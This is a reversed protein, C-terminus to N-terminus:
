RNVQKVPGKGDLPKVFFANPDSHKDTVEFLDPKYDDQIKNRGEPHDRLLVLNGIPIDFDKDGSSRENVKARAQISKLAQKNAQVIKEFQKDVWIVKSVSKDDNYQRLGLWNDCPAPAKRGFMLEYPQYGTTSHPTANYAFTLAPLHSPWDGKQEKTLTKLLGFMTRNFRECQLNGQPNYPSTMTREVGYMKCLADIIKNDFSKGQDSHIRSPIGNVHFWSEVLAKAVTLAQQNNTTVAVSFKTFADTMVLVNEKGGKSPDVKTFDLCVLDLPNHAILHGYKPKPINYNGKAVQYRRCQEVWSSADQTMTPWYVRERLLDLTRNIGQHGLYNHLSQLIKKHYRQPLVLQHYEVDNHIYLHDLVGDKLILWHFQYMLQRTNKSRVQYIAAKTPQKGECVWELVPALQNDKAQHEAMTTSPVQHFVDVMGAVVEIKCSGYIDDEASQVVQIHERLSHEVKVGGIIGQLEECIASYSIAQWEEDDNDSCAQNYNEGEAEPRHSSADAVLNSRGTRYVIDFDYLALESLWRIQAAGVKSTKVYVLPNNDTFVTFKSGLLYDKFKECVSWKLAMLEIKASSYDRM